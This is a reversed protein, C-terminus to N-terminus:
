EASGWRALNEAHRQDVKTDVAILERRTANVLSFLKRVDRQIGPIAAISRYVSTLRRLVTWILPILILNVLTVIPGM